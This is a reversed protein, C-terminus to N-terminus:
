SSTSFALSHPALSPFPCAQLTCIVRWFRADFLHSGPPPPILPDSCNSVSTRSRQRHSPQHCPLLPHAHKKKAEPSERTERQSALRKKNQQWGGQCRRDKEGRGMRISFPHCKFPDKLFFFASSMLLQNM